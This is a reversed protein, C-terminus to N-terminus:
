RSQFLPDGGGTGEPADYSSRLPTLVHSICYTRQVTLHRGRMLMM